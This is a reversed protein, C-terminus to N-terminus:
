RAICRRHLQKCSGCLLSGQKSSIKSPAISHDLNSVVLHSVHHEQPGLPVRIKCGLPLVNYTSGHARQHLRQGVTQVAPGHGTGIVPVQHHYLCLLASVAQCFKLQHCVTQDQQRIGVRLM